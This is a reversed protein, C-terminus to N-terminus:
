YCHRKTKKDKPSKTRHAGFMQCWVVFCAFQKVRRSSCCIEALATKFRKKIQLESKNTSIFRSKTTCYIEPLVNKCHRKLKGNQLSSSNQIHNVFYLVGLFDSNHLKTLITFHSLSAPGPQPCPKKVQTSILSM